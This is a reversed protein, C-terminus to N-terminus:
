RIERGPDSEMGSRFMGYNLLGDWKGGPTARASTQLYVNGLELKLVFKYALVELYILFSM